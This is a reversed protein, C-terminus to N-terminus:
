AGTAAGEDPRTRERDPVISPPAAADPLVALAAMCRLHTWVERWARWYGVQRYPLARTKCFTSVVPQARRLRVCPVHPLLHHEIQLNLGGTLVTVLWSSGYNRSFRIQREFFPPEHSAPRTGMGVHPVVLIAGMYLGKVVLIAAYDALAIWLSSVFAPTVIWMGVHASICAADIATRRRLERAVYLVGALNM